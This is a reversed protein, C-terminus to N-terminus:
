PLARFTRAGGPLFIDKIWSWVELDEVANVDVAYGRPILDEPEEYEKEM